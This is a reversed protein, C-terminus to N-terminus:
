VRGNRFFVYSSVVRCHSRLINNYHSSNEPTLKPSRLGIDELKFGNKIWEDLTEEVYGPVLDMSQAQVFGAVRDQLFRWQDANKAWRAAHHRDGGGGRRRRPKNPNATNGSPLETVPQAIHEASPVLLPDIIHIDSSAQQEM